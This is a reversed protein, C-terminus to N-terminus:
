WVARANWKMLPISFPGRPYHTSTYVITTVMVGEPVFSGRNVSSFWSSELIKKVTNELILSFSFNGKSSCRIWLPPSFIQGNPFHENAVISFARTAPFQTAPWDTRGNRRAYTHLHRSHKRKFTPISSPPERTPGIAFTFALAIRAFNSLLVSYSRGSLRQLVSGSGTQDM